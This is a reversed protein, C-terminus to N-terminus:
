PAGGLLAPCWADLEAKVDAPTVGVLEARAPWYAACAERASRVVELGAKARDAPADFAVCNTAAFMACIPVLRARPMPWM